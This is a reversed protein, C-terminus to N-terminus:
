RKSVIFLEGGLLKAIEITKVKEVSLHTKEVSLHALYNTATEGVRV